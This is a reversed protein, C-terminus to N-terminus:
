KFQMRSHNNECVNNLMRLYYHHYSVKFEILYVYYQM